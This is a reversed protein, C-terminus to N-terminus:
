EDLPFIRLLLVFLFAFIKDFNMGAVFIVFIAAICIFFEVM